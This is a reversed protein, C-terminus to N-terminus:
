ASRRRKKWPILSRIGPVASSAAAYLTGGIALVLPLVQSVVPQMQIITSFVPIKGPFAAEVTGAIAIVSAVAGAIGKSPPASQSMLKREIIPQVAQRAKKSAVIGRVMEALEREAEANPRKRRVRKPNNTM